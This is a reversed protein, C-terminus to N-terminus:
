CGSRTATEDHSGASGTDHAPTCHPVHERTRMGSRWAETMLAAAALGTFSFPHLYRFLSEEAALCLVAMVLWNWGALLGASVRLDAPALRAAALSLFPALLLFLTWPYAFVHYRRSLTHLKHSPRADLHFVSLIAQADWPLVQPEPGIGHDLELAHKARFLRKWYGAYTRLGLGLFGVPDRLIARRALGGAVRDVADVDGDLAATLRDILGGPAWHQKWRQSHNSLKIEGAEQEMLIAAIRSDDTDTPKVIPATAAVLFIGSRYHYAPERGALYGTLFRYANHFLLTAACAVFTGLVTARLQRNRGLFHAVIPLSISGALAVPLYVIRIAALLIGLFSVMVLWRSTEERLYQLAALLFLAAALLALTEAMIMREHVIQKPDLAFVVAAAAAIWFRVRFFRLLVFALLWATIGGILVQAVILPKLSHFPLCILRILFGYFYSREPIFALGLGNLIFAGSDHYFLPTSDAVFELSKIVALILALATLPRHRVAAM